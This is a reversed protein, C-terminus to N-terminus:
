IGSRALREKLAETSLVGEIKDVQKGQKFLILTPLANVQYETALEPYKDSDIKVVKLRDGMQGKLEELIGAMMQCPGCWTAYFDVLVPADSSSILDTFSSFEQKIAM